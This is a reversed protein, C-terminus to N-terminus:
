PKAAVVTYNTRNSAVSILTERKLKSHDLVKLLEELNGESVIYISYFSSEKDPFITNNMIKYTKLHEELSIIESSYTM